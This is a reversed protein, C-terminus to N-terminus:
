VAIIAQKCDLPLLFFEYGISIYYFFEFKIMYDADDITNKMTNIADLLASFRSVM